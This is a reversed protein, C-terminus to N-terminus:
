LARRLAEVRDEREWPFEDRGFHGYTATSRYRPARLDLAEIIGAPRLDFTRGIAQELRGPDVDGSGHLDVFVSVPEPVGIAYALQLTCRRALGAAVVNRAVYRAMYAASRDVKTADKGSFAGGGHPCSGGYTDVVIKRGTLGTDAAPGGLVFIGTPNILVRMGEARLDDGVVADVIETQVAQVVRELSIGEAHQTSLVLATVAEPRDDVYRVTVQSKADPGLWSLADTRRVLAHRRLLDHALKLPLPMRTDTEDTAYGFMLGQDGAGLHGDAREVGRHIDDSQAALCVRLEASALDLGSGPAGYGIQRVVDAVLDPVAAVLEDHSFVESRVEGGVALLRPGVFAECAVRANPDRALAWDVVADSIQDAVKDPHGESVSESSFLYSRRM